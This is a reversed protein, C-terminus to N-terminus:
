YDNDSEVKNGTVIAIGKSAGIRDAGAKIMEIAQEYTSVGGSAKVSVQEGVTEKMLAVDELTAGGTSFGTSTKVFDAGAAKVALSANKIEEKTLLCTELIVKVIVNTNILRVDEVVAKVEEQIQQWKAQKADAINIVMDVEDAGLSVAERAEFVKTSLTNAGLPFGVVTCVKVSSEKLQEKCFSIWSPNVCVSMFDYEKAEKCLIEIEEKTADPKLLTHDIYKALNKM